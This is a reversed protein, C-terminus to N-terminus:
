VKGGVSRSPRRPCSSRSSGSGRRGGRLYGGAIGDGGGGGRGRGCVAAANEAAPIQGAAVVVAPGVISEESAPAIDAAEAYNIVFRNPCLNEYVAATYDVAITSTCILTHVIKM